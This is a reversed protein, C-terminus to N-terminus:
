GFFWRFTVPASTLLVFLWTAKALAYVRTSTQGIPRGGYSAVSEPPGVQRELLHRLADRDQPTLCRLPLTVALRNDWFGSGRMHLRWFSTDESWGVVARWAWQESSLESESSVGADTFRLRFPHRDVRPGPRWEWAVWGCAVLAATAGWGDLFFVACALVGAIAIAPSSWDRGGDCKDAATPRVEVAIQGALRM